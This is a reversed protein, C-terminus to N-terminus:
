FASPGKAVRRIDARTIGIDRLERSSMRDLESMTQHFKIWNTLSRAVNM